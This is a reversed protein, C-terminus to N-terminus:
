KWSKLWFSAILAWLTIAALLPCLLLLDVRINYGMAECYREWPAWSGWAVAAALLPWPRFRGSLLLALYGLLFLAAVVAIREPHSVFPQFPLFLERMDEIRVSTSDGTKKVNGVRAV